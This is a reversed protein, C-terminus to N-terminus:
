ELLLWAIVSLIPWFDALRVLDLDFPLTLPTPDIQRAVLNQHVNVMPVSPPIVVPFSVQHGQTDLAM